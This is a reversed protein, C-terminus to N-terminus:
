PCRQYTTVIGTALDSRVLLDGHLPSKKVLTLQIEDLHKANPARCLLRLRHGSEALKSIKRMSRIDCGQEFMEIQREDIKITLVDSAYGPSCTALDGSTWRGIFPNGEAAAANVCLSAMLIGAILLRRM